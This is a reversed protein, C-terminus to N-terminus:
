CLTPSRRKRTCSIPLFMAPAGMSVMKGRVNYSFDMMLISGLLTGDDDFCGRYRGEEPTHLESEMNALLEPPTKSPFSTVVNRALQKVEEPRVFRIDM